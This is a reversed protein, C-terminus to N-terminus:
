GWLNKKTRRMADEQRKRLSSAGTIFESGKRSVRPVHLDMARNFSSSPRRQRREVIIEEDYDDDEVITYRRRRKGTGALIFLFLFGMIVLTAIAWGFGEMIWVVIFPVLILMAIWFYKSKLM